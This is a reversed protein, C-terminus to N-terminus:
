DGRNGEFDSLAKGDALTAASDAGPGDDRYSLLRLRHHCPLPDSDAELRVVVSQEILRRRLDHLRSLPGARINDTGNRQRRADLFEGYQPRGEDVLVAPFLELDARMLPEDVDQLRGRLRDVGQHSERQSRADVDFDLHSAAILIPNIPRLTPM